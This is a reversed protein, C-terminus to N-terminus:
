HILRDFGREIVTTGYMACLVAAAPDRADENPQPGGVAKAALLLWAGELMEQASRLANWAAVLTNEDLQEVWARLHDSATRMPDGVSALGSLSDERANNVTRVIRTADATAGSSELARKLRGLFTAYRSDDARLRASRTEINQVGECYGGYLWGVPDNMPRISALAGIARSAGLLGERLLEVCRDSDTASEITACQKDITAVAKLADEWAKVEAAKERARASAEARLKLSHERLKKMAERRPKMIIRFSGSEGQKPSAQQGEDSPTQKCM